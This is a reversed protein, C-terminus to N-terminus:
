RAQAGKVPRAGAAADWAALGTGQCGAWSGLAAPVIPPPLHFTARRAVQQALPDFLTAGADALGGGVVILEPDLLAIGSIVGAALADVAEAWVEGALADGARVRAAIQEADAAQDGGREAYRRRIAAASAYTELCGRAGCGCPPGDPDIVVHGIEGARAHAGAAPAGATVMTGGIGTGITILFFDRAGRGAGLRAEAIAAARVDHRVVVPVDFSKALLEGIPVDRWGVNASVVAVARADDVIGPLSLGIARPGGPCQDARERATALVRDIVADPGHERGTPMVQRLETSGDAGVLATKMRTGGIDLAVVRGDAGADVEGRHGTM